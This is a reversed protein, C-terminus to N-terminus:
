PLTFAVNELSGLFSHQIQREHKVPIINNSRSTDDDFYAQFQSRKVKGFFTRYFLLLRDSRPHARRKIPPFQLKKDEM